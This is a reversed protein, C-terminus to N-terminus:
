ISKGIIHLQQSKTINDYIQKDAYIHMYYCLTNLLMYKDAYQMYYCLTNLLM